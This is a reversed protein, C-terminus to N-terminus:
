PSADEVKKVKPSYAILFYVNPNNPSHAPEIVGDERVAVVDLGLITVEGRVATVWPNSEDSPLPMQPKLM